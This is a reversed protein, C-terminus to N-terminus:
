KRLEKLAALSFRTIHDALQEVDEPEFHQEPYLRQIVPRTYYYHLCQGVVSAACLRVQDSTANTGLFGRVISELLENTPRYNQDILQDLVNTPDAMERAILKGHWTPRGKDAIRHLFSRVYAHLREELPPNDGLGLTPPYKQLAVRAWENFTEAYLSEKDGFHYNIAAVNAGARDCIERITANRFGREAFIEGAAELLRQRTEASQEQASMGFSISTEFM